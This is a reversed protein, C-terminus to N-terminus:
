NCVVTESVSFFIFILSILYIIILGEMRLRSETASCHVRCDAGWIGKFTILSDLRSPAATIRVWPVPETQCRLLSTHWLRLDRGQLPSHTPPIESVQQLPSLTKKYFNSLNLLATAWLPFVAAGETPGPFTGSHVAALRRQPCFNLPNTTATAANTGIFGALFADRNTCWLSDQRFFPLAHNSGQTGGWFHEPNNLSSGWQAGRDGRSSNM